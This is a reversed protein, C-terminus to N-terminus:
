GDRESVAPGYKRIKGRFQDYTLGLHAAAKRQNYRYVTLAQRIMKTELNEVAQKISISGAPESSVGMEYTKAVHEGEPEGQVQISEYPSVFPDFVVKDIIGSEARHVAREVVNKLERINGKWSNEELVRAVEETFEPIM